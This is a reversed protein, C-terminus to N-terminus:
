TQRVGHHQAQAKGDLIRHQERVGFVARDHARLGAEKGSQESRRSFDERGAGDFTRAGPPSGMNARSRSLSRPMKREPPPLPRPREMDRAKAASPARINRTPRRSSSRSSVQAVM